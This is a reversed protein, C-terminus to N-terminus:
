YIKDTLSTKVTDFWEHKLISLIISDRRSGDARKGNSRLVGEVYCGIAKMAAVSRDNESDARFEVRQMEMREFAFQLLLYKCHRNLGTRQFQKGYWTYGLQMTQELLKIDYYRTCGAYQGVRKDFVIFPYQTRNKRDAIAGDLYNALGDRGAATIMSYTWLEPENLAFPLLNIYDDGVLPRLLVVNDELTYDVDFDFAAM